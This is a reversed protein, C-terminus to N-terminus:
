VNNNDIVTITKSTNTHGEKISCIKKNIVSCCLVDFKGCAERQAKPLDAGKKESRRLKDKM